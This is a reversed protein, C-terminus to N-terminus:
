KPFIRVFILLTFTNGMSFLNRMKIIPGDNFKRDKYNAFADWINCETGIRNKLILFCLSQFCAFRKSVRVEAEFKQLVASAVVGFTTERVLWTKM